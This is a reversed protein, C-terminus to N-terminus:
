QKIVKWETWKQSISLRLIYIGNPYNTLDINTISGSLSNKCVTRGNIDTILTYADLGEEWNGIELKLEGKTPNPYIKVKRDGNHSEVVAAQGESIFASKGLTIIQRTLRNGANDYTYEVKKTQSFVALNWFLLFGIILYKKM